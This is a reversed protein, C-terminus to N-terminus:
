KGTLGKNDEVPYELLKRILENCLAESPDPNSCINFVPSDSNCDGHRKFLMLIKSINMKAVAKPHHLCGGNM